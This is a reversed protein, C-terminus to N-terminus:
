VSGKGECEAHPEGRQMKYYFTIYEFALMFCATIFWSDGCIFSYVLYCLKLMTRYWNDRCLCFAAICCFFGLVDGYIVLHTSYMDLLLAAAFCWGFLIVNAVLLAFTGNQKKVAHLLDCPLYQPPCSCIKTAIQLREDPSYFRVSYKACQKFLERMHDGGVLRIFSSM